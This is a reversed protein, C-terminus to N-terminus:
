IVDAFDPKLSKFVYRGLYLISISIAWFIILSPINYLISSNYILSDRYGEVIHYAPNLDMLWRLNPPM